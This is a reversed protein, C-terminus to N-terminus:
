ASRECSAVAMVPLLTHNGGGNTVLVGDPGSISTTAQQGAFIGPGTRGLFQRNGFVDVAANSRDAVYDLGSTPDVFSIDFATFNGSQNNDPSVPITITSLLELPVFPGAAAPGATAALAVVGALAASLIHRM